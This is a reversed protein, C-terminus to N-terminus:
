PSSSLLSSFDWRQWYSRSRPPIQFSFLTCNVSSSRVERGGEWKPLGGM